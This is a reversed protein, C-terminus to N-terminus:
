NLCMAKSNNYNRHIDFESAKDQLDQLTTPLTSMLMIQSHISKNLGQMYMFRLAENNYNADTAYSNFMNNYTDVSYKGQKLKSLLMRTTEGKNHEKFTEKFGRIFDNYDPAKTKNPAVVNTGHSPRATYWEAWAAAPGDKMYSLVFAIKLDNNVVAPTGTEFEKTKGAIYLECEHLFCNTKTWDGNLPTPTAIAPGWATTAMDEEEQTDQPPLSPPITTEDSKESKPSLASTSAQGFLLQNIPKEEEEKPSEAQSNTRTLPGASSISQIYARLPICLQSDWTIWSHFIPELTLYSRPQYKHAVKNKFLINLEIHL